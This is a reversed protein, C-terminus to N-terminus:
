CTECKNPVRTITSVGSCSGETSWLGEQSLHGCSESSFICYYTCLSNPQFFTALSLGLTMQIKQYPLSFFTLRGQDYPARFSSFFKMLWPKCNFLNFITYTLPPWCTLRDALRQQDITGSKANFQCSCKEILIGSLMITINHLILNVLVHFRPERHYIHPLNLNV